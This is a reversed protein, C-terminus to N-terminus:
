VPQRSGGSRYSSTVADGVVRAIEDKNGLVSGNITIHVGGGTGGGKPIVYEGAHAYIPGDTRVPGGAAFGRLASGPIGGITTGFIQRGFRGSAEDMLQAARIANYLEASMSFFSSATQQAAHGASIISGTALDVAPAAAAAAEGVGQAAFRAQEEKVAADMLSQGFEQMLVTEQAQISFGAVKAAQLSRQAAELRTFATEQVEVGATLKLTAELEKLVANNTLDLYAATQKATSALIKTEMDLQQKWRLDAFAQAAKAAAEM